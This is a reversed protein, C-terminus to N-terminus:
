SEKVPVELAIAGRATESRKQPSWVSGGLREIVRRALPLALGLGGRGEDFPARPAHWADDVDPSPAIVIVLGAGRPMAARGARAIVEIPGPQERLVARAFASLALHIRGADGKVPAEREESQVRLVVDRDRGEQLDAALAELVAILDVSQESMRATGADFKSIDSIEEILAVIRGCSKEAEEVMRRQRDSLRPDQDGQLM